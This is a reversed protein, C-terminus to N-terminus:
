FPIELQLGAETRASGPTEELGSGLADVDERAIRSIRGRIETGDSVEFAAAAQLLFGEGWVPASGFEGPFGLEGCYARSAYGTTSFGACGAAIAFAQLPKWRLQWELAGGSDHLDDASAETLQLELNLSVEEAARWSVRATERWNSAGQTLFARGTAILELRPSIRRSIELSARERASGDSSGASVSLAGLWGRAPRWRSALGCGLDCELGSPSSSREDGFAEPTRFAAACFRFEDSNGSIALWFASTTASDAELAVEGSFEAGSAQLAFDAGSRIITNGEEIRRLVTIGAAGFDARVASLIERVSRRSEIESPTRHLGEGSPDVASWSQLLATTFGLSAITVSAGTLPRGECQGAGTALAIQTRREPPRADLGPAGGGWSSSGGLVMGSGLEARLWGASASRLFSSGAWSAGGALLDGWNEGRDKESLILTSVAGFRMQSRYLFVLEDGAYAGTAVGLCEPFRRWLRLLLDGNGADGAALASLLLLAGTM